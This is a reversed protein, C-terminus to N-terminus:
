TADATIRYIHQPWPPVIQLTNSALGGKAQWCCCYDTKTSVTFKPDIHM